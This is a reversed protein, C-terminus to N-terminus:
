LSSAFKAKKRLTPQTMIKIWDLAGGTKKM